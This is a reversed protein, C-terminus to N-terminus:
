SETRTQQAQPAAVAPAVAIPGFQKIEGENLVLVRDAVSLINRQHVVMFVTRGQSGLESGGFGGNKSGRKSGSQLGGTLM